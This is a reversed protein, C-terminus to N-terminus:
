SIRQIYLQNDKAIMEIPENYLRNIRRINDAFTRVGADKNEAFREIGELHKQEQYDKISKSAGILNEDLQGDRIKPIKAITEGAIKSLGAM